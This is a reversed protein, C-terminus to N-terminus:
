AEPIRKANRAEVYDAAARLFEPNDKFFGLGRNCGDCLLMRICQGCSRDGSCCSHDHDVYPTNVFEQLCIGCKNDQILIMEQFKDDSLNYRYKRGYKQGRDPNYATQPKGRAKWGELSQPNRCSKCKTHRGDKTNRAVHFDTLAKTEQCGNCVKTTNM